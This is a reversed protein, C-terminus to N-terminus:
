DWSRSYFMEKDTKRWRSIDDKQEWDIKKGDIILELSMGKKVYGRLADKLPIEWDSNVNLLELRFQPAMGREFRQKLFEIILDEDHHKFYPNTENNRALSFEYCDNIILSRLSPLYYMGPMNLVKLFSRITDQHCYQLSLEQTGSIRPLVYQLTSIPWVYLHHFKVSILSIPLQSFFAEIHPFSEPDTRGDATYLVGANGWDLHRLAPVEMRNFLTLFHADSIHSWKLEELHRYVLKDNSSSIIDDPRWGYRVRQLTSSRFRVLNTCRTLLEGCVDMTVSDLEIITISAWPLQIKPNVRRLSIRTLTHVDSLDLNGSKEHLSSQGDMSLHTLRSFNSFSPNWDLPVNTIQFFKIKQSNEPKFLVSGAAAACVRKANDTPPLDLDLSIPYNSVNTFYLNLLGTTSEPRTRMYIHLSLASWLEPTSWAVQRWHHSVHGLTLPCFRFSYWRQPNHGREERDLQIYPCTFQFIYSLIETALTRTKAQVSNLRRLLAVRDERPQSDDVELQHLQEMISEIEEEAM